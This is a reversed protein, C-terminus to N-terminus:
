SLTHKSRSTLSVTLSAFKKLQSLIEELSDVKFSLWQLVERIERLRPGKVVWYSVGKEKPDRLSKLTLNGQWCHFMKKWSSTGYRFSGQMCDCTGQLSKTKQNGKRKTKASETLAVKITMWQCIWRNKTKMSTIPQNPMMGKLQIM